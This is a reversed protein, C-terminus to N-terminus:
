QSIAEVRYFAFGNPPDLDSFITETTHAILEGQNDNPFPESSRFVNYRPLYRIEPGLDMEEPPTWYILVHNDWFIPEFVEVEYYPPLWNELSDSVQRALLMQFNELMDLSFNDSQFYSEVRDFINSEIAFSWDWIGNGETNHLKWSEICTEFNQTKTIWDSIDMSHDCIESGNPGDYEVPVSGARVWMPSAICGVPNGVMGWLTTLDPRENPLIGQAVMVSRSTSRCITGDLPIMGFPLDEYYNDYPLTYDDMGEAALNRAVKQFIYKPTLEENEIAHRYLAYARDHRNPGWNRARNDLADGSYSYNSRVIFGEQTEAADIRVYSSCAAEFMAADGFADFTGYNYNFSRGTRNTSDLLHELDDVTRCTALMHAQMNGFADWGGGGEPLNYSNSNEVAFGAANVGAYYRFGNENSYCLGIFPIRGDDVYHYEQNGNGVDRTKWLLPRGDPTVAGCAIGTTCGILQEAM